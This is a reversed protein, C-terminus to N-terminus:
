RRRAPPAILLNRSRVAGVAYGDADLLSVTLTFGRSNRPNNLPQVPVAVTREGAPIVVSSGFDAFDRGARANGEIRLRVELDSALNSGSRTVYLQAPSGGNRAVSDESFGLQVVPTGTLGSFAEVAVQYHGAATPHFGDWFLFRDANDRYSFTQAVSTVDDFGYARPNAEARRLLDFADVITIRVNIGAAALQAQAQGLALPLNQRFAASLQNLGAATAAGLALVSPTDGLPPVNVVLFQRAGAVALQSVLAAENGVAAAVGAPSSDFTLDNAGGWLIYLLGADARGGAASLFDTVQKGMDDVTVAYRGNNALPSVSPVIDLHTGASTRANGYAYDAGGELSPVAPDIGFFIAALQEHWLGAFNRSRPANQIDPGSTYRGDTYRFFITPLRVGTEQASRDAHNGTDSLSDGFIAFGQYSQAGAPTLAAALLLFTAVCVAVTRRLLQQVPLVFPLRPIM